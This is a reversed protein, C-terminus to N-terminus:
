EFDEIQFGRQKDQLFTEVYIRSEDTLCYLNNNTINAVWFDVIERAKSYRVFEMKSDTQLIGATKLDLELKVWDYKLDIGRPWVHYKLCVQTASLDFDIIRGYFKKDYRYPVGVIREVHHLMTTYNLGAGFWVILGNRKYIQGFISEKDFPDLESSEEQEMQGRTNVFNFVPMRTRTLSFEVRLAENVPGLQTQDNGVDYVGRSCFDYNFTPLLLNREVGLQLIRSKYESVIQQRDKMGSVIIRAGIADIHMLLDTADENLVSKM